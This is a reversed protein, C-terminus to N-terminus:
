GATNEQWAVKDDGYSASLVDVDGDGDVDAASVRFPQSVDTTITRTTWASGDGATNEHWAVRNGASSATVVDVDGDRDVDAAVLAVPGNAGTAITRPVWASGNGATNDYWLVTSSGFATTLVDQDGDGDVDAAFIPVPSALGTAITRTTWATGDGVVNEYWIVAAGDHSAALADVDGDGDLDAAHLGYSGDLATSIVRTTWVSGAGNNQYWALTDNLVSASLLDTDGDGDVDAAIARTAGAAATTVPPQVAFPVETAQVATPHAAVVAVAFVGAAIRPTFRVRRAM